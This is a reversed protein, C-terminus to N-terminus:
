AAGGGFRPDAAPVKVSTIWPMWNPIRERDEWLAFAEELPVDCDIQASRCAVARTCFAAEFADQDPYPKLLYRVAVIARVQKRAM